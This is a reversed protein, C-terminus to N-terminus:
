QVDLHQYSIAKTSSMEFATSVAASTQQWDLLKLFMCSRLGRMAKRLSWVEGLISAEDVHGQFWTVHEVHQQPGDAKM